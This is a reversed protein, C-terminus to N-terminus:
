YRWNTYKSNGVRRGAARTWDPDAGDSWNSFSNYGSNGTSSTKGPLNGKAETTNGYTANKKNEYANRYGTYSSVAMGAITLANQFRSPMKPASLNLGNLYDETQYLASEKNLDIENSKRAYNDKISSTARALDGAVARNLLTATRGEGGYGENISAEVQANTEAGNRTIKDLEAAAAEFADRREIEYNQFLHTMNKIAADKKANMQAQYSNAMAKQTQYEGYINLALQTGAMASMFDCM